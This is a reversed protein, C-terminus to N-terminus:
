KMNSFFTVDGAKDIKLVIAKSENKLEAFYNNADEFSVGYLIMDTNNIDNDDFQIVRAVTYDAYKKTIENQANGPLDAFSKEQTTGVLQNDVDYYAKLQKNGSMFSVEDFYKTREFHVNQPDKFDVVFNSKTLNSVADRNEARRDIHQGKRAEKREIRAEKREKRDTKNFAFSGTAAALIFGAALFIKKM